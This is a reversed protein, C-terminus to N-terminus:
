AGPRPGVKPASEFRPTPKEHWGAQCASHCSFRLPSTCTPIVRFGSAVTVRSAAVTSVPVPELVQLTSPQASASANRPTRGSSM